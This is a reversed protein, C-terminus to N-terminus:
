MSKKKGGTEKQTNGECGFNRTDEQYCSCGTVAAIYNVNAICLFLGEFLLYTYILGTIKSSLCPLVTISTHQWSHAIMHYLMVWKQCLSYMDIGSLYVSIHRCCCICDIIFFTMCYSITHKFFSDCQQGYIQWCTIFQLVSYGYLTAYNSCM